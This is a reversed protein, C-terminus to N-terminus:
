AALAIKTRNERAEAITDANYRRLYAELGKMTVAQYGHEGKVVTQVAFGMKLLTDRGSKSPVDGDFLPGREVLAILTDLEGGVFDSTIM